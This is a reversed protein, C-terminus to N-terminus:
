RFHEIRAARLGRSDTVTCTLDFGLGIPDAPHVKRTGASVAYPFPRPAFDRTETWCASLPCRGEVDQFHLEVRLADGDLDNVRCGYDAIDGPIPKDGGTPGANDDWDIEVVVPATGERSLVPGTFSYPLAIERAEYILGSPVTRSVFLRAETRVPVFSGAYSCAWFTVGNLTLDVPSM